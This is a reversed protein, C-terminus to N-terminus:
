IVMWMRMECMPIEYERVFEVDEGHAVCVNRVEILHSSLMNKTSGIAIWQTGEDTYGLRLSLM